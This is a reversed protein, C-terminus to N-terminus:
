TAASGCDYVDPQRYQHHHQLWTRQLVDGPLRYRTRRHDVDSHPKRGTARVTSCRETTAKFILRKWSYNRDISVVDSPKPMMMRTIFPMVVILAVTIFINFGSFLTDGVPILGAIHEVPNGPTAALLPMSGSFGGGWTLFGIYACAILLPYDSGPVRRAVERAFMAGVVLGFGWNIVCAVSGFFTVLMVGQVPTKAASAATRLLSKVPASSALAHGTVIILAMQMGFALLNWFGDGWMKVMSIPTQPTLWLAIVFTLLTLLMAFILPDPLWRSVFRTMFRSIRGIM